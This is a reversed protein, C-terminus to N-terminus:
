GTVAWGHPPVTLQAGNSTPRLRGNGALLQGGGPVPHDAPGDGLNLAVVIRHPDDVVEYVLRTNSLHLVRTEARHLWAHRRRLGILDQHLRYTSWGFPALGESTAPFPPRVADDGGARNEKIGRFAQEDGYYVNPTGGITFLVVLAHALHREDTLRSAIRTVDHNGVFTLPVFQALYGNHRDLAWALEFFNRDNVASWIAKWVEYQTVSDLRSQRVFTGYDGHIVEGVAYVEPHQERVRRLVTAWFRPSVAYAADLRWGDAGRDLWHCMVRTVYEVVAPEEHNLAVLGPHGEFVEFEVTGAAPTTPRFWSAEAAPPGQRLVRQFAPFARGVHNVVGDLLQRLGRVRAAEVLLDFDGDDGLRPDIRFHDITDYGHTESDFVPGLAIGSVGLRVAYDLWDVVQRLRHIPQPATNVAPAGTFGLPYVHWWTAHRVWAPEHVPAEVSGAGARGSGPRHPHAGSEM